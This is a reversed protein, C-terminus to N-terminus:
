SFVEMVFPVSPKDPGACIRLRCAGDALRHAIYRADVIPSFLIGMALFRLWADRVASRLGYFHYSGSLSCPHRLTRWMAALAKKVITSNQPSPSCRFDML